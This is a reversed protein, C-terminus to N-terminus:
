LAIRLREGEDVARDLGARGHHGDAEADPESGCSCHADITSFCTRRTSGWDLSMWFSVGYDCPETGTSRAFMGSHNLGRM